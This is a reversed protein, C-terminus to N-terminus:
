LAHLKAVIQDLTHHSLQLTFERVQGLEGGEGGYRAETVPEDPLDVCLQM